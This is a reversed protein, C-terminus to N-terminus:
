VEELLSKFVKEVVAKPHYNENLLQSETFWHPTKEGFPHNSEARLEGDNARGLYTITISHWSQEPLIIESVDVLKVITAKIGTEEFLERIATDEVREGFEVRGGPINWQVTGNDSDFHPVLLLKNNQIVAM